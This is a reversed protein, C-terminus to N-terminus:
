NENKGRMNIIKEQDIKELRAHHNAIFHSIIGSGVLGMGSIGVVNSFTSTVPHQDYLEAEEIAKNSQVTSYGIAVSGIVLMLIETIRINRSIRGHSFKEPWTIFSERGQEININVELPRFGEKWLFLSRYGIPLSIIEAIPSHQPIGDICLFGDNPFKKLLLTGEPVAKESWLSLLLFVSFFCLSIKKKM